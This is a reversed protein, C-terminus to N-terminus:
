QRSSSGTMRPRVRPLGPTAAHPLSKEDISPNDKQGYPEKCCLPPKTSLFNIANNTDPATTNALASITEAAGAVDVFGNRVESDLFFAV